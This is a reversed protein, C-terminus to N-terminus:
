IFFINKLFQTIKYLPIQLYLTCIDMTNRAILVGFVSIIASPKFAYPSM